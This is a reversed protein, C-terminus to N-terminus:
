SWGLRCSHIVIEDSRTTKYALGFSAVWGCGGHGWFVTCQDRVGRGRPDVIDQRVPLVELQADVVVQYREEHFPVMEGDLLGEVLDAVHGVLAVAPPVEGQGVKWGVALLNVALYHLEHLNTPSHSLAVQVPPLDAGDTTKSQSRSFKM